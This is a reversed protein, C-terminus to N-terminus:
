KIVQAGLGELIIKVVAFATIEAMDYQPNLEVIDWSVKQDQTIIQFLGTLLWILQRTLIGGAVPNGVGPAFAPDLVDLDLSVHIREYKKVLNKALNLGFHYFDQVMLENISITDINNKKAYSIQNDNFDRFGLVTAGQFNKLESLRRLTCAHSFNTGMVEDYLDLHADIYIPYFNTSTEEFAQGIGITISHDGGVVLIPQHFQLLDSFGESISQISKQLDSNIVGINGWDQIRYFEKLNYGSETTCEFNESKFVRRLYDPGDRAGTRYSSSIDLPVGLFHYNPEELPWRKKIIGCLMDKEHTVFKINGLVTKMGKDKHDILEQM